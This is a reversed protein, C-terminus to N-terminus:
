AIRSNLPAKGTRLASETTSKDNATAEEHSAVKDAISNHLTDVVQKAEADYKDRSRREARGFNQMPDKKM